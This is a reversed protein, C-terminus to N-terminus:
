TRYRVGATVYAQRRHRLVIAGFCSAAALLLYLLAAGGEPASIFGLFEQPPATPCSGGGCTISKSLDPTYIFFNAFQSPTLGAPIKALWANVGALQSTSLGNLASPNFLSWLAYALYGQANNNQNAPVFMQTALWAADAYLTSAGSKSSWIPQTSSSLNSFNTVNATWSENLYTDHSWDDCIIQSAQGNVTASYAGVYVGNMVYPGGSSMNIGVSGQGLACPAFFLLMALSVGLLGRNLQYM